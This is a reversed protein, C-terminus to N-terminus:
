ERFHDLAVLADGFGVATGHPLCLGVVVGSRPATVPLLLAGIQLLGLMQGVRVPAGAEVFPRDHLPHRHLFVGVSQAKVSSHSPRAQLPGDAMDTSDDRDQRLRLSTGPGRLELEAIDTAALWASIRAIDNFQM